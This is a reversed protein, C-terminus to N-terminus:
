EAKVIKHSDIMAQIEIMLLRTSRVCEEKDVSIDFCLRGAAVKAENFLNENVSESM